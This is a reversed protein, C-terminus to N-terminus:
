LKDQLLKHAWNKLEDYNKPKPTPITDFGEDINLDEYFIDCNIVFPINDLDKNQKGIYNFNELLYNDNLSIVDPEIDNLYVFKKRSVAIYNSIVQEVINKRRIRIVFINDNIFNKNYHRVFSRYHEKLVFFNNLDKYIFFDNLNKQNLSPENFFKYGLQNSLFQGLLTSGTRPSSLILISKNNPLKIM